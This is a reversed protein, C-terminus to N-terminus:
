GREREMKGKHDGERVPDAGKARWGGEISGAIEEM